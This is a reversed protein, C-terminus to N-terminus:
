NEKFYKKRIKDELKPDDISLKDDKKYLPTISGREFMVYLMYTVVIVALWSSM